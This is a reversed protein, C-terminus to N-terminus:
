WLQKGDARDFCILTRKKEGSVAQTLFVKDGWVVPSSNGREPLAVRWKMNETPSFKEPLNKATSVGTGDPGRWSPWNALSLAASCAFVVVVATRTTNM